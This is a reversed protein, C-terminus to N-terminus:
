SGCIEKRIQYFCNLYFHVKPINYEPKNSLHATPPLWRCMIVPALNITSDEKKREKLKVDIGPGSLDM